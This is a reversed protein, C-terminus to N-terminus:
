LPRWSSPGLKSAIDSVHIELIRRHNSGALHLEHEVRYGTPLTPLEAGCWILLRMESSCERIAELLVTTIAVARCTVIDFGRPIERSIPREVRVNLCNCSLGCQRVATMLFAWKRERPEVLTVQHSPRAAALVLGPFGAGSGIDLISSVPPILPLAALSEGYHRAVIDFATGPGVLSVTPNWRCLETYHIYLTSLCVDSCSPAVRLLRERFPGEPLLPLPSGM